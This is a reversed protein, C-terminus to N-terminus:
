PRTSDWMEGPCDVDGGGGCRGGRLGGGCDGALAGLCACFFVCEQTETDPGNTEQADLDVDEAHVDAGRVEITQLCCEHAM